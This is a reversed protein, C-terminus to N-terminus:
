IYQMIFLPAFKQFIPEAITQAIGEFSSGFLTKLTDIFGENILDNNQLYSFEELLTFGLKLQKQKPLKNFNKINNVDEVIMMIRNNVLTEEILLKEQKEKTEIITTKIKKSLNM